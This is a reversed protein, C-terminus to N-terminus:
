GGYLCKKLLPYIAQAMSYFGLDTPHCNDVLGECGCLATLESGSLLYVNKDGDALARDYTERIVALRALTDDSLEHHPRPMFIVPTTPQSARFIDFLRGHTKRLHEVTPANHDYDYVFVSMPLGAIYEAIEKEGKANGSFGLNIFDFDLMRSLVSSYMTGARSACGGQTISSGYFVVPKTVTYEAAKQLCAGNRLGVLVSRVGSYTPFNLTIDRMRSDVLPIEVTYANTQYAQFPPVATGLYRYGDSTKEYADFGASGSFAFHSMYGFSAFQVSLTIYPSDTVFRLRGGSAHFNLERVGESITEAVSCPIRHFIDTEENPPILGYLRFPEQLIDYFATDGDTHDCKVAFNSDLEAINKM